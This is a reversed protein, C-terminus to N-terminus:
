GVSHVVCGRKEVRQEDNEPGLVGVDCKQHPVKTQKKRQLFHSPM